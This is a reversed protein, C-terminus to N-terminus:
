RRSSAGGQRGLTTRRARRRLALGEHGGDLAARHEPALEVRLEGAGEPRRQELAPELARRDGAGPPDGSPGGRTMGHRSTFSPLTTFPTRKWPRRSQRRGRPARPRRRPAGPASSSQRSSTEAVRSPRALATSVTAGHAGRDPDGEGHAAADPATSSAARSSSAPASLTATLVAARSRGSSSASILADGPRGTCPARGPRPAGRLLSARCCGAPLHDDGAPGPAGPSSAIWHAAARSPRPAPSIRAVLQSRSPVPLPTRRRAGGRGRRRRGTGRMALPPARVVRGCPSPGRRRRSRRARRRWRGRRRGGDSRLGLEGPRARTRGWAKGERGIIMGLMSRM